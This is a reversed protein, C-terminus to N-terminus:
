VVYLSFTGGEFPFAQLVPNHPSVVLDEELGLGESPVQHSATAVTGAVQSSTVQDLVLIHPRVWGVGPLLRALPPSISFPSARFAWLECHLPCGAPLAPLSGHM